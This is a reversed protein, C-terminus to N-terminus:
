AITGIGTFLREANETTIRAMEVASISHLSALREVIYPIYAPENREGRHPMPTLYPADTEVLLRDLPVRAAIQRTSEANKFTIPGTFGLYFGIALTREAIAQSASFSHMVGPRSRLPEDLDRVWSELIPLLDDSADRNHIIVPLALRAALDLQAIFARHQVEKPSHDRYYDLGIEGLAVVKPQGAQLTMRTIAQAGDTDFASTNNPHIGICAFVGRHAQAMQIAGDAAAVDVSPIIVRAVGATLARRIVADLDDNYADFDLHCHTDIM